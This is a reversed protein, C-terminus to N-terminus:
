QARAADRAGPAVIAVGAQERLAILAELEADTLLRMVREWDAGTARRWATWTAAQHATFPQGAVLARFCDAVTADGELPPAPPQPLAAEVAHLRRALSARM